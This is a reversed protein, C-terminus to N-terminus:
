LGLWDPEEMSRIVEARYEVSWDNWDGQRDGVALYAEVGISRLDLVIKQAESRADSDLGVFVRRDTRSALLARQTESVSKGFAAVANFGADRVAWANFIGEVLVLDREAWAEDWGYLFQTKKLKLSDNPPNLYKLHSPHLKAHDWAQFFVFAGNFFVPLCTRGEYRGEVFVGAREKLIREMSFGRASMALLSQYIQNDYFPIGTYGGDACHWRIGPVQLDEARTRVPALDEEEADEESVAELFAMFSDFDAPSVKKRGGLAKYAAERDCGTISCVLTVVSGKEQCRYCIFQAKTSNVWLGKEKGCFPCTCILEEGAEQTFELNDVVWSEINETDLLM